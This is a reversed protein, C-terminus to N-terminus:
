KAEALCTSEEVCEQATVLCHFLWVRVAAGGFDASLFMAKM